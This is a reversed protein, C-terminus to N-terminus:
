KKRRFFLLLLVVLIIVLIIIIFYFVNQSMGLPPEYNEKYVDPSNKDLDCAVQTTTPDSALGYINPCDNFITHYSSECSKNKKYEANVCEKYKDFSDQTWQSIDDVTKCECNTINSDLICQRCNTSMDNVTSNQRLPWKSPDPNTTDNFFYTDCDGPIIATDEQYFMNQANQNRNQQEISGFHSPVMKSTCMNRNMSSKSM